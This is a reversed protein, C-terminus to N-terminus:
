ERKPNQYLRMYVTPSELEKILLWDRPLTELHEDFANMINSQLIYDFENLKRSDKDTLQRTDNNLHTFKAAHIAPYESGVSAFDIDNEELYHMMETKMDFFPLYALFSDWGKAIRDPYVWFHGSTLSLCVLAILVYQTRRRAFVPLVFLVCLGVLLFYVMLYRHVLPITRIAIIPFYIILPLVTIAALQWTKYSIKEKKRYLAFLAAAGILYLMVRGFDLLRWILVAVNKAFGAIGVYQYDAAWASQHNLMLFGTERYHYAFWLLTLAAAPLYTLPVEGFLKHWPKGKIKGNRAALWLLALDCCFILFVAIIGRLSVLALVCFAIAALVRRWVGGRLICWLALLHCFVMCLDFGMMVSQALLTPELFLFLLAAPLLREPLFYRALKFYVVGIGVLFPFAAWHSVALTKGFLKWVVAIYYGYFPPHGSDIANPLALQAFDTELYFHALKSVLTVNDGYFPIHLSCLTLMAYFLAIISYYAYSKFAKQM